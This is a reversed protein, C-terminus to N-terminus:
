PKPTQEYEWAMKRGKWERKKPRQKHRMTKDKKPNKKGTGRNGRRLVKFFGM